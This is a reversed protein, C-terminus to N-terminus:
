RDWGTSQITSWTQEGLIDSNASLYKDIKAHDIEKNNYKGHSASCIQANDRNDRIGCGMSRLM